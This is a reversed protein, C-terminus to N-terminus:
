CYAMGTPLCKKRSIPITQWSTLTRSGSTQNSIHNLHWILRLAPLATGTADYADIQSRSMYNQNQIFRTQAVSQAVGFGMNVLGTLAQIGAIASNIAGQTTASGNALASGAGASQSLMQAADSGVGTGGTAGRSLIQLAADRSIGAGTLRALENTPTNYNRQEQLMNFDYQRQDQTTQYSLLNNFISM